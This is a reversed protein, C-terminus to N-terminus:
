NRQEGVVEWEGTALAGLFHFLTSPNLSLFNCLLGM